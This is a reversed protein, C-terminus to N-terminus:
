TFPRDLDDDPEDQKVLVEHLFYDDAWLHLGCGLRMACRKIADSAAHKAREGNTKKQAVQDCEGAEVVSVTRGDVVCTLRALCGDVRGEPDRILEIVEFDFPGVVALLKQTVADHSVYDGHQGSAATKVLRPAFPKALDALASM